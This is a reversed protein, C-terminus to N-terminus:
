LKFQQHYGTLLILVIGLIGLIWMVLGALGHPGAWVWMWFLAGVSGMQLDVEGGRALKRMGVVYWATSVGAGLLKPFGLPTAFAPEPLPFKPSTEPGKHDSGFMPSPPLIQHPLDPCLVSLRGIGLLHAHGQCLINSFQSPTRLSGTLMILPAAKNTFSPLAQVVLRSFSSFFAQRPSSSAM